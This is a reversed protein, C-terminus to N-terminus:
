QGLAQLVFYQIIMLILPLAIATLAIRATESRWPWTPIDSIRRHQIELSSITGNLMEAAAYDGDDLHQNFQAFTAESRLSIELLACRKEAEMLRHSGYLPWVFVAISLATFAGAIALSSPDAL